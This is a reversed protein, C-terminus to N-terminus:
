PKIIRYDLHVQKKIQEAYKQTEEISKLGDVWVCYFKRFNIKRQVVKAKINQKHLVQLLRQANEENGFAGFQVKFPSVASFLNGAKLPKSASQPTALVSDNHIQTYQAAKVYLGLAYYYDHLRQAALSKLPSQAQQYVREYNQKAKLGNREFLTKFFLYSLSSTDQPTSQKLGLQIQKFQHNRYFNILQEQNMQAYLKMGLVVLMLLILHINLNLFNTNKKIFVGIGTFSNLVLFENTFPQKIGRRPKHLLIM